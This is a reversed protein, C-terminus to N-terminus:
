SVDDAARRVPPRAQSPPAEVHARYAPYGIGPPSSANARDEAVADRPVGHECLTRRTRSPLKTRRFLNVM